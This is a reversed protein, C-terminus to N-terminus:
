DEPAAERAALWRELAALEDDYGETARWVERADRALALARAREDPAGESADWLARALVFQSEARREKAEGGRERITLARRVLPLAEGPRGRDLAVEALGTLPYALRPDDPGHVKEWIALARRYRTEAEDLEGMSRYVNGLNHTSTAVHTHEPGHAKTLIALAREGIAKAEAYEGLARHAAALNNLSAAVDPHEPGHVAEWIAGAREYLAKAEVYAGTSRHVEAVNNLARAVHPHNPGLANVLNHHAREYLARAEDYDGTSCRIIALNNLSLAVDPHDPGLAKEWISQARRLLAEAEDNAGRDIHVNALNNLSDAVLPHEPGLAQERITLAREHSAMAEAYAGTSLQVMALSNLVDARRLSADADGLMALAVDAQRGWRYGGVHDARKYGVTYILRVAAEAATGWSGVEAALFYADELDVEAEEYSGTKSLTTGTRLRAAAVLPPWHLGEAAALAERARALGREYQGAAELAGARLLTESAARVAARDRPPGPLLSLLRPDQCAWVEELKAAASVARRAMKEDARALESALAALELGRLELCWAARDLTQEDWGKARRVRADLCVETRAERIADAQADFYPLVRAVTTTAFSVGTAALGARVRERAEASWVAASADGDAECAAVRARAVRRELGLAAAVLALGAVAGLAWRRARARGRGRDLAALLARMSAFRHDPEVSLGRLCVGRLWRPVRRAEASRPSRVEGLLVNAALENLTDGAFPREGYLAEWLTVCFSFVDSRADVEDGRLQEPSMYAPTGLVAGVRTVRLDRPPPEELGRPAAERAGRGAEEVVRALGLDMVRARGDRGIMVNEPKFDRHLVKAEHAAVLGRGAAGMVELAERWTRAKKKLWTGLTVGDVFEMALWVGGAREGVDYIAVVNPHSLKALAQAERVLRARAEAGSSFGEDRALEPRLLKLAVKRDLEPDYAAYVVGMGGAGLEGLVVFRGVVDARGLGDSGRARQAGRAGAVALTDDTVFTESM